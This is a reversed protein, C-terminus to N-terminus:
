NFKRTSALTWDDIDCNTVVTNFVDKSILVINSALAIEVKYELGEVENGYTTQQQHELSLEQLVNLSNTVLQSEPLKEPSGRRSKHLQEVFKVMYSEGIKPMFAKADGSFKKYLETTFSNDEPVTKTRKNAMHKNENKRCSSDFPVDLATTTLIPQSKPANKQTVNIQKNQKYFLEELTTIEVEPMRKHTPLETVDESAPTAKPQHESVKLKSFAELQQEEQPQGKCPKLHLVHEELLETKPYSENNQSVKLKLSDM